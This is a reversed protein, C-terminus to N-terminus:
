SHHHRHACGCYSRVVSAWVFALLSTGRGHERRSVTVLRSTAQRPLNRGGVGEMWCNIENSALQNPRSSSCGLAVRLSLNCCRGSAQAPHHYTQNCAPRPPGRGRCHPRAALKRHTRRPGTGAKSDAAAHHTHRWAIPADQINGKKKTPVCQRETDATHEMRM